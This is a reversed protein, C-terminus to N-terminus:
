MGHRCCSPLISCRHEPESAVKTERVIKGSSVVVCVSSQELSVDLGAYYDTLEESPAQPRCM